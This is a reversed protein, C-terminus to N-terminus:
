KSKSISGMTKRPGNLCDLAQYSRGEMVRYPENLPRALIKGRSM